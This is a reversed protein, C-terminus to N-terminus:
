QVTAPAEPNSIQALMAMTQMSEAKAALVSARVREMTYESGAELIDAIKMPAILAEIDEAIGPIGSNLLMTIKAATDAASGSWDWLGGQYAQQKMALKM